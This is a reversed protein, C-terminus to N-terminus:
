KFDSIPYIVGHNPLKIVENKVVETMPPNLRRQVKKTPKIGEEMYINHMYVSARIGKTDAITWELAIKHRRLVVLLIEEQSSSLKLSIVVLLAENDGLFYKLTSPLPKLKLKPPSM